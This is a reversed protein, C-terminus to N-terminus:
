KVRGITKQGSFAGTISRPLCIPFIRESFHVKDFKLVAADFLTTKAINKSGKYKPHRIVEKVVRNIM